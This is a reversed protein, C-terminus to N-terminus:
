PIDAPPKQKNLLYAARWEEQHFFLDAPLDPCTRGSRMLVAIRWAVIMYLAIARQLGDITGPQRAEIRCGNKLIHFFSGIERRARGM